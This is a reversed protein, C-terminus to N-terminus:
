TESFVLSSSFLRRLIRKIFRQLIKVNIGDAAHIQLLTLNSEREDKITKRFATKLMRIISAEREAEASSIPSIAGILLLKRIRLKM